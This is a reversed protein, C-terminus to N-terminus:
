VLIKVTHWKILTVIWIYVLLIYCKLNIGVILLIYVNKIKLVIKLSQFQDYSRIKSCKKLFFYLCIFIKQSYEKACTIFRYIVLTLINRKYYSYMIHSIQFFLVKSNILFVVSNINILSYLFSTIYYLVWEILTHMFNPLNYINRSTFPFM